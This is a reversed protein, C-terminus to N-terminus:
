NEESIINQQAYPKLWARYREINDCGLKNCVKFQDILSMEEFETIIGYKKKMAKVLDHYLAYSSEIENIAARYEARRRLEDADKQAILQAVSAKYEDFDKAALLAEIAKESLKVTSWDSKELAKKKERIRESTIHSERELATIEALFEPNNARRQGGRNFDLEHDVAARLEAPMEIGRVSLYHFKSPPFCTNMIGNAYYVNNSTLLNYSKIAADARCYHGNYRTTSGDEMYVSNDTTLDNVDKCPTDGVSYVYHEDVTELVTGNEFINLKSNKSDKSRANMIVVAPVQKEATFDYSLVEDGCCVDKVAKKSGDAMTIMTNEEVCGIYSIINSVSINGYATHFEIDGYADMDIYTYPSYNSNVRSANIGTGKKILYLDKQPNYSYTVGNKSVTGTTVFNKYEQETSFYIVNM